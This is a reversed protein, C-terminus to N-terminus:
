GKRAHAARFHARHAELAATPGILVRGSALRREALGRVTLEKIAQYAAAHGLGHDAALQVIDELPLLERLLDAMLLDRESLVDVIRVGRLVPLRIPEPDCYWAEVGEQFAALMAAAALIKTGGSVSVRVSGGGRAADFIERCAADLCAAFDFPNVLVAHLGPELNRLRLFGKTRLSAKGALLVLEDYPFLRLAPLVRREDFGFTALVTRKM